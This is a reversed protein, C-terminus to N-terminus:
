DIRSAQRDCLPLWNAQPQWEWSIIQTRDGNQFEIRARETKGTLSWVNRDRTLEYHRYFGHNDFTRAFYGRTASDVGMVSLTDFEGGAIKAHENQVLFFLGTHWQAEHTSTWNEGNAKHDPGSQDTGGYSLGTATWRGQFVGLSDHQHGRIPPSESM